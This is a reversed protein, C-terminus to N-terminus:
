RVQFEMHVRDHVRKASEPNYLRAIPARGHTHGYWVRGQAASGPQPGGHLKGVGNAKPGHRALCLNYAMAEHYQACAPNDQAQASGAWGLAALCLAIAVRAAM